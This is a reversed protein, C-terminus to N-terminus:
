PALGALWGQLAARDPEAGLREFLRLAQAGDERAHQREGAEAGLRARAALAEAELLLAGHERALAVAQDLAHRAGALDGLETLAAGQLRLADAQGLADPIAAYEAAGLRAGAEAV